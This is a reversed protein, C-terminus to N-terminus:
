VLISIGEIKTIGSCHFSVFDIKCGDHHYNRRRSEDEYTTKEYHDHYGESVDKSQLHGYPKRQTKTFNDFLSYGNNIFEVFQAFSPTFTVHIAFILPQEGPIAIGNGEEIIALM